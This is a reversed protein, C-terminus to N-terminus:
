NIANMVQLGVRDLKGAGICCCYLGLFPVSTNWVGVACSRVRQPMRIHRPVSTPFPQNLTYKSILCSERLRHLKHAHKHTWFLWEQKGGARNYVSIVNNLQDRVPTVDYAFPVGRRAIHGGLQDTWGSQRVYAYVFM